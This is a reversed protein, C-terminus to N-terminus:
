VQGLAPEFLMSNGRVEFTTEVFSIAGWSGSRLMASRMTEPISNQKFEPPNTSHMGTEHRNVAKKRAAEIPEEGTVRYHENFLVIINM